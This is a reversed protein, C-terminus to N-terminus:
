KTIQRQFLEPDNSQQSSELVTTIFRPPPWPERRFKYIYDRLLHLARDEESLARIGLFLSYTEFDQLGTERTILHIGELEEVWHRFNGNFEGQKVRIHIGLALYAARRMLNSNPSLEGIQSFAGAAENFDGEELAVRARLFWEETRAPIDDRSISHGRSRDLMERALAFDGSALHLQVISSMVARVRGALRNASAHELARLMLTKADEERGAVRCSNAANILARSFTAPDATLQSEAVFQQAATVGKEPDGRITQYVMEVEFRTVRNVEERALLPEIEAYLTDMLGPQIETALKLALSAARVRHNATADKCMVCPVVDRLLEASDLSTRRCADFLAIEFDNHSDDGPSLRARLRRCNRIVEKSREWEGDMQLAIVLRSSLSLRQEDTNCYDLARQFADCADRPLGVELLHEACSRVLTLARERNGANHWHFACAWLAATPMREDSLEEELVIGVRRHLFSRAPPTLNALAASSLLDHRSGLAISSRGCSENPSILMGAMSLEQVATLLEHPKYELVEEVRELTSDDGFVACVQLLQLAAPSLRALRENLVSAVSPPANICHGTELWHKTLEQLFFPNGEGAKLIWEVSARDPSTSDHGIMARLLSAASEERLPALDVQNTISLAASTRCFESNPRSTIIFLLRRKEAWPVMSALIKASTADLWQVDDVVLLLATEDAIADLLDFLADRLNGYSATSEERVTSIEASRMDFETLRRLASLTEPSCGIAGPMERLSPILDVFASLPRSIDERHCSVRATQVGELEALTALETSLRTKGIGAEGVIFCAGGNAERARELKRILVRMERERGVFAPDAVRDAARDPIREKIRKRLLSAPLKIDTGPGVERLYQELLEVAQRKSGRMATAEAQALVASENLPDLIRCRTSITEVSPWDGRLRSRDLENVLLRMVSAHTAERMTDVWELLPESFPPSYGPLFELSNSHAISATPAALFEDIDSRADHQSIQLNDRDARVIIGLKKLQLITQRLRHARAKEAVRPWLLSALRARSVRKGRELVLYLAAAFM